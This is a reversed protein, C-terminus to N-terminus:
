AKTLEYDAYASQWDSCMRCMDPLEDFRSELHMRRLDKLRGQWLEKISDTNADGCDVRCHVDVSCLAVRGDACINITQMLWYCPKRNVSSNPRLNDASVLGAWSVKPRVKVNVGENKWFEKFPEVENENFESVVFQVFLKQEPRGHRALLDRYTLTYAKAKEFDGGLRIKGYTEDTAADIGVYLADLGAEIYARAKEPTMLNGNTNLVVDTLGKDKAYRIRAPMDPCLFPDGFFIQWVRADPGAEAIEDILRHYLDLPMVQIKRYNKINRHDCMSCRLNCASQNDILIVKPFDLAEQIRNAKEIISKPSM